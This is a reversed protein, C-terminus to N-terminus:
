VVEEVCTDFHEIAVGALSGLSDLPEVDCLWEGCRDCILRFNGAIMTAFLASAFPEPLRAAGSM